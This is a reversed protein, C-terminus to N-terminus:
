IWSLDTRESPITSKTAHRALNHASQNKRKPVYTFKVSNFTSALELIALCVKKDPHVKSGTEHANKLLRRLSNYDSRIKIDSAGYMVAIELARLIAIQECFGPAIGESIYKQVPGRKRPRDTVQVVIGIGLIGTEYDVSGDVTFTYKM